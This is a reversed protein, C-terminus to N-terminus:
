SEDWQLVFTKPNVFGPPTPAAGNVVTALLFYDSYHAVALPDGFVGAVSINSLAPEAAPVPYNAFLNTGMVGSGDGAYPIAPVGSGNVGSGYSPFQWIPPHTAFCSCGIVEGLVPVGTSKWFKLNSVSTLGNLNVLHARLWKAYSYTPGFRNLVIKHATPDLNPLDASGFNISTIGDTTVPASVPGNTESLELTASM